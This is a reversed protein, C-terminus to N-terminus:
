CNVGGAFWVQRGGDSLYADPDRQRALRLADQQAEELTRGEGYGCMAHLTQYNVLEVKFWKKAAAM